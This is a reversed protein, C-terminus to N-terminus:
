IKVKKIESLYALKTCIRMSREITKPLATELVWFSLVVYIVTLFNNEFVRWLSRSYYHTYVFYWYLSFHVSSYVIVSWRSVKLGIFDIKKSEKLSESEKIKKEDITGFKTSITEGNRKEEEFIYNYIYRNGSIAFLVWHFIKGIGLLVNKAVTRWFYIKTRLFFGRIPRTNKIHQEYIKKLIDNGSIKKNGSYLEGKCPDYFYENPFEADLPESLKQESRMQVGGEVRKGYSVHINLPKKIISTDTLIARPIYIQFLSTYVADEGGIKKQFSFGNEVGEFKVVDTFGHKEPEFKKIFIDNLNNM